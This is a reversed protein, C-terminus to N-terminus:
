AARGQHQAKIQRIRDRRGGHRKEPIRELIWADILSLTTMLKGDPSYAVPFGHDKRWRYLTVKGIQMAECIADIGILMHPTSSMGCLM